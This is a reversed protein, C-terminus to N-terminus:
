DDIAAGGRGKYVAHVMGLPKAASLNGTRQESEIRNRCKIWVYADPQFMSWKARLSNASRTMEFWENCIKEIAKLM